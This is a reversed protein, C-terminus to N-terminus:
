AHSPYHQARFLAFSISGAIDPLVLGGDRHHPARVQWSLEGDDTIDVSGRAPQSPNTVTLITFADPDSLHRSTTLGCRFLAYSAANLIIARGEHPPLEPRTIEAEPDLLTRTITILKVPDIHRGQASRYEWIVTGLESITLDTIAGRANSIKLYADGEWAPVTFGYGDKLLMDIVKSMAQDAPRDSKEIPPAPAPQPLPM